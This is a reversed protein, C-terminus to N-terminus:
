KLLINLHLQWHQLTLAAEYKRDRRELLLKQLNLYTINILYFLSLKRPLQQKKKKLCFVAYSIAVHSSNLRTSKRDAKIISFKEVADAVSRRRRVGATDILVWDRGQREFDIHISDRTTGPQDFVVLREEGLM